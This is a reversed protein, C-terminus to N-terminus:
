HPIPAQQWSFWDLFQTLVQLGVERVGLLPSPTSASRQAAVSKILRTQTTFGLACPQHVELSPFWLEEVHWWALGWVGHPCSSRQEPSQGKYRKM